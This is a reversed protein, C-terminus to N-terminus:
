DEAARRFGDDPSVAPEWGLVDRAKATDYVMDRTASRVVFRSLRPLTDPHSRRHRRELWWAAGLIVPEPVPVVVSRAQPEALRAAADVSPHPSDVVNFIEGAAAPETSALLICDVANDIYAFPVRNQASGIALVYRGFRRLGVGPPRGPGYLVGPRIITVELGHDTAARLVAEEAALKSRLYHASPDPRSALPDAESVPGGGGEIGYVIVSSIHIVRRVGAEAAAELVAETGRINVADHVAWPLYNTTVAACHFVTDVGKMARELSQRDGLDGVALTTHRELEFSAAEPDRVLSVVDSGCRALAAALQGGLFGTAGTVLARRPVRRQEVLRIEVPTRPTPTTTPERAEPQSPIRSQLSQLTRVMLRGDEGTVAPRGGAAVSRYFDDFLLPLEPMAKWRGLAVMAASRATGVTLQAVEELNFAVKAVAGPLNRQRHVVCVERVLDARATGKTGYVEVLKMYPKTALSVTLTATAEPGRLAAVLETPTTARGGSSLSVGEVEVEAGVLDHALYILHPLFNTFVGGPLRWAWHAGPGGGAYSSQEGAVGYFASVGTVRGIAGETVLTRLETISPKFLYNHCTSLRVGNREAAAVMEDAEEVTLAMPKEVMVHCGAAMVELALSAHTAPPTVIHVADPQHQRLMTAVDDHVAVGPRGSVLESARRRDRDVVAVLEVRDLQDLAAVHMGSIRGCGVIAVTLPRTSM